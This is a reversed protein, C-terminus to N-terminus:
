IEMANMGGALRRERVEDSTERGGVMWVLIIEEAGM